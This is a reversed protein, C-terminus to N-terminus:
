QPTGATPMAPMPFTGKEKVQQLKRQTERAEFAWESKLKCVKPQRMHSGTSFESRDKKCVMPDEAKTAAPIDGAALLLASLTLIM